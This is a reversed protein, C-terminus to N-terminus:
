HEDEPLGARLRELEKLIRRTDSKVSPIHKTDNQIDRSIGLSVVQLALGLASKHAELSSRHKAIEDKGGFGWYISIGRRSQRHNELCVDIDGIVQDCNEIIDLIQKKLNTPLPSVDSGVTDRALDKLVVKLSYLELTVADLEKPVNKFDGAFTTVSSSVKAVTGILAICALTISLPDM